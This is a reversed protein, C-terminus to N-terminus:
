KNDRWFQTECAQNTVNEIQSNERGEVLGVHTVLINSSKNHVIAGAHTLGAKGTVVSGPSDKGRNNSSGTM